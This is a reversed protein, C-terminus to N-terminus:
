AGVKLAYRGPTKINLIKAVESKQPDVVIVIGSWEHTFENSGCIPCKEEDPKVLAKCRLCAKFTKIGKSM